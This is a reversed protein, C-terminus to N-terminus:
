EVLYFTSQPVGTQVQEVNANEKFFSFLFFYNFLVFCIYLLLFTYKVTRHMFKFKTRIREGRIACVCCRDVTIIFHYKQKM